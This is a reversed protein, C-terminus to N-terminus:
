KNHVLYNGAIFWDAPECNFQYVTANKLIEEISNVLIETFTGDDNVQILYTGIEVAGAPAVQYFGNMKVFLPQSTSFLKDQDENFGLVMNRPSPDISVIRTTTKGTPTLTESVFGVYDFDNSGTEDSMPLEELLVTSVEDGVQLDKAAVLGNPTSILTDEDICKPPSFTFPKSVPTFGFPTFGFAGFPTFGFPTFGFPTFGFAGFPTFGFPTFGFPTFGFAGFPAFSFTYNVLNVNTGIAQVEGAAVSQSKITNNLGTNGTNENTTNYVFGANTLDTEATTKAVGVVNPVSNKRSGKNGRGLNKAM